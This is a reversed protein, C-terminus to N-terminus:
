CIEIEWTEPNLYLDVSGYTHSMATLRDGIAGLGRDWFGAGHRNRTLWFDHAFHEPTGGLSEYQELLNDPVAAVFANLDERM